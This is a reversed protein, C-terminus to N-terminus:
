GDMVEELTPVRKAKRELGLMAALRLVRDLQQLYATHIAKRRGKGTLVGEALIRGEMWELMAEARIYRDVTGAAITSLEGEGGLDGLVAQRREALAGTADQEIERQLRESRGGHKLAATNGAVFQGTEPDRGNAPGNTSVEDSPTVVRDSPSKAADTM